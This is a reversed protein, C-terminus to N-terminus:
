RQSSSSALLRVIQIQLPKRRWQSVIEIHPWVDMYLWGWEPFSPTLQEGLTSVPASHAEKATQRALGLWVQACMSENCFQMALQTSPKATEPKEFLQVQRSQRNPRNHRNRPVSAFCPTKPKATKATRRLPPQHNQRSPNATRAAGLKARDCFDAATIFQEEPSTLQGNQGSRKLPSM